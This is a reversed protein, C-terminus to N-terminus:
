IAVEAHKVENSHARATDAVETPTVILEPHPLNTPKLLMDLRCAVSLALLAVAGLLYPRKM